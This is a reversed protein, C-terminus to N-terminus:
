TVPAASVVARHGHSRCSYFSGCGKKRRIGIKIADDRRAKSQGLVSRILSHASLALNKSPQAM